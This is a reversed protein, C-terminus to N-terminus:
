LALEEYLSIGNRISEAFLPQMHPLSVALFLMALGIGTATRLPMGAFYANLQPMIRTLIALGFEVLLLGLLLPAAFALTLELANGTLAIAGFSLAEWSAQTMVDGVPATIFSRGFAHLAIRHGGLSIFLVVGTALYLTELPTPM